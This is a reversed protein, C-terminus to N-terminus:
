KGPEIETTVLLGGRDQEFWYRTICHFGPVMWAVPVKKQGHSKEPLTPFRGLDTEPLYIFGKVEHMDGWRKPRYVPVKPWVVPTPEEQWTKGDFTKQYLTYRFRKMREQGAPVTKKRPRRVCYVCLLRGEGLSCLSLGRIVDGTHVDVPKTLEANVLAVHRIGKKGLYSAGGTYVIDTREGTATASYHDGVWPEPLGIRPGAQPAAVRKVDVKPWTEVSTVRTARRGDGWTVTIGGGDAAASCQYRNWGKKDILAVPKGLTGDSIEAAMLRGPNDDAYVIVWKDGVRVIKRCKPPDTRPEIRTDDFPVDRFWKKKAEDIKTFDVLPEAAVKKAEAADMPKPDLRLYLLEPDVFKWKNRGVNNPVPRETLVFLPVYGRPRRGLPLTYYHKIVRGAPMKFVEGRRVAKNDAIEYLVIRNGRPRSGELMAAFVRGDHEFLLAQGFYGRLFVDPGWKSGDFSKYIQARTQYDTGSAWHLAGGAELTDWAHWCATRYKTHPFFERLGRVHSGDHFGWAPPACDWFSWFWAPRGRFARILVVGTGIDGSDSGVYVPEAWTVGGDDSYTMVPQTRPKPKGRQGPAKPLFVPQYNAVMWVRPSHPLILLSPYQAAGDCFRKLPQTPKGSVDWEAPGIRNLLRLEIRRGRNQYALVINDNADLAVAPTAGPGITVPPEFTKGDKTLRCVMQWKADTHFFLLHGEKIVATRTWRDSGGWRMEPVKGLDVQRTVEFTVPKRDERAAVLDGAVFFLVTLTLTAAVLSKM